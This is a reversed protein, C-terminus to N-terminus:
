SLSQDFDYHRHYHHHHRHYCIIIVICSHHSARAVTMQDVLCCTLSRSLSLDLKGSEEVGGTLSVSWDSSLIISVSWDCTVVCCSLVSTVSSSLLRTVPVKMM